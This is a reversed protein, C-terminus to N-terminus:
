PYCADPKLRVTDCALSVVHAGDPSMKGPDDAGPEDTLDAGYRSGWQEKGIICQARTGGLRETRRARHVVCM